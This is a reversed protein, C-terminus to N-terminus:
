GSTTRCIGTRLTRTPMTFYGMMGWDTDWSNRVIFRKKADNYGIALVAHGGVVREESKQMPVVGTRAVQQSEFSEYATFGFVFPFDEALCARMQDVTLLRQYSIIQHWLGEKCCVPGPKVAFKSTVYPWKGESCFGQKKLTKIGDRIM